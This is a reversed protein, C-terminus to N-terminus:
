SKEVSEEWCLHPMSLSDIAANHIRKIEAYSDRNVITLRSSLPESRIWTAALEADKEVGDRFYFDIRDAYKLYTDSIRQPLLIGKERVDKETTQVFSKDRKQISQWRVDDPATIHLLRIEYGQKKLYDFFISTAPSTATTGFYFSIKKRILNALIIHNAANSGARWKNYAALRAEKSGDCSAIEAQYTLELQKLCVADTDTYAREIGLSREDAIFQELCTTKGCGPAGATIVAVGEVVPNRSIIRSFVADIDVELKVKEEPSYPTSEPFGKGNLYGELIFLPLSYGPYILGLNCISEAATM